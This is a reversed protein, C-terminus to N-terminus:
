LCLLVNCLSSLILGGSLCLSGFYTQILCHLRLIYWLLHQYLLPSVPLGCKYSLVETGWEKCNIFSSSLFYALICFFHVIFWGVTGLHCMYCKLLVCKKWINRSYEGIFIVDQVYVKVFKFSVLLLFVVAFNGLVQFNVLVCM